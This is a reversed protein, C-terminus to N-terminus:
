LPLPKVHGDVLISAPTATVLELGDDPAGLLRRAGRAPAHIELPQDRHKGDIRVAAPRARRVGRPALVRPDSAVLRVGVVFILPLMSVLLSQVCLECLKIWGDSLVHLGAEAPGVVIATPPERRGLLREAGAAGSEISFDGNM